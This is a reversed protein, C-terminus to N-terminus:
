TEGNGSRSLRWLVLRPHRRPWVMKYRRVKQAPAAIRPLQCRTASFMPHRNYTTPQHGIPLGSLNVTKWGVMGDNWHRLYRCRRTLYFRVALKNSYSTCNSM